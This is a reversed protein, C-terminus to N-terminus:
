QSPRQFPCSLASEYLPRVQPHHNLFRDFGAGVVKRRCRGGNLGCEPVEAASEAALM